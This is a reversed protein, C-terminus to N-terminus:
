RLTIDQSYWKIFDTLSSTGFWLTDGSDTVLRTTAGPILPSPVSAIAEWAGGTLYNADPLLQNLTPAHSADGDWAYLAWSDNAGITANDPPGAIILYEGVDNRRLERISRGALDLFIPAGFRALGSQQAPIGDVLQLVNTIPVLLAHRRGGIDITPARFGLYATTGNAAFEFGEVNLGGPANPLVGPAGAAVLGLFSAGLGHGNNTDWALLDNRLGLPAQADKSLPGGGYRGAFTLETNAGSGTVRTAFIVRRYEKTTGDRGNGQSGTWVILDGVRAAGEIDRENASLQNPDSLDWSKVPYDSENQKYLYLVQGEDGAVVMYGDGVDIATSADAIGMHYRGTEDAPAGSAGYGIAFSSQNVGDTATFTLTATGVGIPSLKATRKTGTGSIVINGAPIVSANSSAVTVQIAAAASSTASLASLQTPVVDFTLDVNTSDAVAGALRWRNVNVVGVTRVVPLQPRASTATVAAGNGLRGQADSGWCYTTGGVTLGCTHLSSAQLTAWATGEPLLSLDLATPSAMQAASGNGLTNGAGWCFGAGQTTVGCSHNAGVSVERWSSGVPLASRQVLVPRDRDVTSAAGDGLKGNLDSGWCYAEGAATVGCTHTMGASIGVWRTDPPLASVDVASPRTQQATLSAGNGLKGNGDDGWCYAVGAGSIGCAHNQAASLALWTSGSPLSSMDIAIPQQQIAAAAPSGVQGNSNSGWCHGTGRATIGCVTNASSGTSLQSWTTAPPLSSMDVAVPTGPTVLARRGLQGLGNSGWCYADGAFSLACAHSAGASIQKWSSELGQPMATSDVFNSSHQAVTTTSGLTGSAANGWCLARGDNPLVQCSHATGLALLASSLPTGPMGCTVVSSVQSSPCGAKQLTFSLTIDGADTCTFQTASRTPDALTGATSTWSVSDAVSSSFGEISLVAGVDGQAASLGIGTAVPCRLETNVVEVEVELDGGRDMESSASGLCVVAMDLTSVDADLIVFPASGSCQVGEETTASLLMTYGSGVPLNGVRFDVTRSHEVDIAGRREIGTPGGSVVYQVARIEEGTPLTLRLALDQVVADHARPDQSTCSAALCALTAAGLVRRKM